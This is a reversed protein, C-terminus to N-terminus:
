WSKGWKSRLLARDEGTGEMLEPYHRSSTGGGSPHSIHVGEVVVAKGGLFLCTYVLDDDGGWWNFRPDFRLGSSLRLMFGFGGIGHERYSGKADRLGVMSHREYDFGAIWVDKRGLLTTAVMHCALPELTIDDNLIAVWDAGEFAAMEIGMNWAQFVNQDNAAWLYGAEQPLEDTNFTGKNDVVTVGVGEDLLQDILPFVTEDAHGISAIVAEIVM